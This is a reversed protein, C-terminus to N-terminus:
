GAAEAFCSLVANHHIGYKSVLAVFCDRGYYPSTGHAIDQANRAQMGAREAAACETQAMIYAAAQAPTM